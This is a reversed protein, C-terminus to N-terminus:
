TCTSATVAPMEFTTVELEADVLTIRVRWDGQPLGPPPVKAHELWAFLAQPDHEFAVWRSCVPVEEPRQSHRVQQALELCACEFAFVAPLYESFGAAAATGAGTDHGLRGQPLEAFATEEGQLQVNEPLRQRWLEDLLDRLRPGLLLCSMSFADHISAFRNARALTCNLSMGPQRAVASLRRAERPTLDFESLAAGGQAHVANALRADLTMATLARQFGRLSM